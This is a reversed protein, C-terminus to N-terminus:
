TKDGPASTCRLAVRLARIEAFAQRIEHQIQKGDYGPHRLMNNMVVYQDRVANMDADNVFPHGEACCPLTENDAV